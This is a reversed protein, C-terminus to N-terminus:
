GHASAAVPSIDPVVPLPFMQPQFVRLEDRGNCLSVPLSLSTETPADEHVRVGYEGLVEEMRGTEQLTILHPGVLDRLERELQVLSRTCTATGSEVCKGFWEEEPEFRFTLVVYGSKAM